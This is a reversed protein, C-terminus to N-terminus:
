LSVIKHILAYKMLGTVSHNGTKKLMNVRHSDVTQKSIDLERGIERSTMGRMILQLIEKERKTLKLDAEANESDNDSDNNEANLEPHTIQYLTKILEEKGTNKFLYGDAKCAMAREIYEKKNQISFLAVKIYPYRQKVITCLEAGTLKEMSSDALLIDYSEPEKDIMELADFGNLATAKVVYEPYFDLISKFGDLIIQHEDALLINIKKDM